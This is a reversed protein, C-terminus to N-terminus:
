KVSAFTGFVLHWEPSGITREDSFHSGVHEHSNRRSLFGIGTFPDHYRTTPVQTNAFEHQIRRAHLDRHFHQFPGPEDDMHDPDFRMHPDPRFGVDSGFDVPSASVTSPALHGLYVGIHKRGFSAWIAGAPAAFRFREM